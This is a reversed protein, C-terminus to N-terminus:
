DQKKPQAWKSISVVGIPPNNVLTRVISKMAIGKQEKSEYRVGLINENEIEWANREMISHWVKNLSSEIRPLASKHVTIHATSGNMMMLDVTYAKSTPAGVRKVHAFLPGGWPYYEEIKFCQIGSIWCYGPELKMNM